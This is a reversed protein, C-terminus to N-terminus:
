TFTFQRKGPNVPFIGQNTLLVYVQVDKRASVLNVSLKQGAKADIKYDHTTMRDPIFGKVTASSKGRAFRLEKEVTEGKQAFVTVSGIACLIFLLIFPRYYKNM